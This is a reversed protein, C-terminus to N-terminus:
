YLHKIIQTIGWVQFFIIEKGCTIIQLLFNTMKSYFLKHKYGLVYM